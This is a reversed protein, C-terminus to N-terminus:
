GGVRAGSRDSQTFAISSQAGEAVAPPLGHVAEAMGDRYQQNLVSGLIAIGLASGLERATDNM